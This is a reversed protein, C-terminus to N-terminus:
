IAMVDRVIESATEDSDCNTCIHWGYLHDYRDTVQGCNACNLAIDKRSFREVMRGTHFDKVTEAMVGEGRQHRPNRCRLSECEKARYDASKSVHATVEHEKAIADCVKAADERVEDAYRTCLRIIRNECDQQHEFTACDNAIKEAETKINIVKLGKTFNKGVCM